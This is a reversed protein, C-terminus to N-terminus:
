SQVSKLRKSKYQMLLELTSVEYLFFVICILTTVAPHLNLLIKDPLFLRLYFFSLFLANFGQLVLNVQENRGFGSKHWSMLRRFAFFYTILAVTALAFGVYDSKLSLPFMVNLGYLVLSSLVTIGLRPMKFYSILISRLLRIHGKAQNAHYDEEMKLLGKRGGFGKHIDSMALEFPVGTTLQEEIGNAYHDTLEDILDENLLWNEKRLHRDIATLQENTLAM